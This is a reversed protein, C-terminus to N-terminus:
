KCCSYKAHHFQAMAGCPDYAVFTTLKLGRAVCTREAETKLAVETQCTMPNGIVAGVCTTPPPTPPTPPMSADCCEAEAAVFGGVACPKDLKLDHLTQMKTSCFTTAERKWVDPLRCIGMSPLPNWTCRGVPPPPPPTTPGCCEVRVDFHGTAGSARCVTGYTLNKVTTGKAKCVAEARAKWASDDVCSGMPDKLSETFCMGPPPPPPPPPPTSTGCCEVRVDFHGTYGSARCVTGYTLNKVTASKAKCVAEARTKWTSDDVCTGMPDKLSETFCMGPPPPPPPPPPPTIADCCTYTAERWSAMGCSTALMVNKLALGKAKCSAEGYSRWTKEDKCSTAGGEKITVCRPTVDPSLANVDEGTTVEGAAQDVPAGDCAGLLAAVAVVSFLWPRKRSTNNRGLGNQGNQM